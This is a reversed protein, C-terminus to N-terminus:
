RSGRALPELRRVAEVSGLEAARQYWFRAEIPDPQAGIVRLQKFTNPDYTSGLLLAAQPDGGEAARRLMLRASALDGYAIFEQGRRLLIALEERDLTSASARPAPPASSRVGPDPSALAPVAMVPAQSPLAAMAPGWEMRMASKDAVSDDALRLEVALDMAGVFDRPPAVMARALDEVPVRWGGAALASGKSIQAGAALGTVIVSGQGLSGALSVGLPAAENAAFRRSEVLALRVPVSRAAQPAGPRDAKAAAQAPPSGVQEEPATKKAEPFAFLVVVYAAAAALVTLGVLRGVQKTGLGHSPAHPPEPVYQPDLTM